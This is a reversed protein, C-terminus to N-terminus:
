FLDIQKQGRGCYPSYYLTERHRNNNKSYGSLATWTETKWGLDLLEEHEEYGALVIRYNKRAGREACWQRVKEATDRSDHTYVTDRNKNPYPPDFFIGVSSWNYDQWDGGCVQYWEGCVVRVYRLRDSFEKLWPIIKHRHATKHIGTGKDAIRPIPNNRHMRYVISCSVCWIWHGAIKTNCFDPDSMLNDTIDHNRLYKTRATLDAHNVPWDCYYAVKEPDSKISRWVNCVMGDKDNVTETRDAHYDRSFLVAGSGFFPEIYHDPNGLYAWIKDAAKSKGGFYPFLQTDM